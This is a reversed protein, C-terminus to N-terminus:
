NTFYDLLDFDTTEKLISVKKDTTQRLTYLHLENDSDKVTFAYNIGNPNIQYGIYLIPTGKIKVSKYLKQISKNASTFGMSEMVWNEVEGVADADKVRELLEEHGIPVNSCSALCFMLLCGIMILSVFKKM